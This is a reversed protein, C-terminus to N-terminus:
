LLQVSTLFFHLMACHIRGEDLCGLPMVTPVFVEAAASQRFYKVRRQLGGENKKVLFCVYTKLALNQM